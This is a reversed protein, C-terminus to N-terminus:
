QEVLSPEDVYFAEAPVPEKLMGVEILQGVLTEWRKKSMSGIPVDKQILPKQAAASAAFTEPTMAPNLKAMAANAASPDDLYATWGARVAAVMRRCEAPHSDFYARRTALVTTYPNFGSEAVLFTVPDAGAARAAIPESTIFCQQSLKPDHLFEAISGGAPVVRLKGFDYHKQLYRVYPLGEQLALVGPQDFVDALKTFGRAQHTMIAQPNDQYVAFLAVVDNGQQRAQVIEDASVIAFEVTGAGVMQISPINPGGPQIVVKLQNKSYDGDVQAAYFGGFQPEPHWNLQLRLPQDSRDCSALLSTLILLLPLVWLLTVSGLWFRISAM